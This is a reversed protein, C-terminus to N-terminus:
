ERPVLLRDFTTSEGRTEDLVVLDVPQSSWASLGPAEIVLEHPGTQAVGLEISSDLAHNRFVVARYPGHGPFHGDFVIADGAHDTAAYSNLRRAV